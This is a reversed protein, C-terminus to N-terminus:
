KNQLKKLMDQLMKIQARLDSITVSSSPTIPSPSPIVTSVGGSLEKLKARTKPGVVGYGPQNKRAIGYKEQFREVAAKTKPGFYGSVIGEPYISKDTALFKQLASVDNGRSGPVLPRLIVVPAASPISLSPVIPKPALLAHPEPASSPISTAIPTPTPTLTLTQSSTSTPTPSSSPAPSSGGPSGGSSGGGGGGSGSGTATETSATCTGSPTITVTVQSGSTAVSQISRSDDANCITAIGRDNTLNRKLSSIIIVQDQPAITFTLTGGSVVVSNFTSGGKVTYGEGNSPLTLSFDQTTTVTGASVAFPILSLASVGLFISLIRKM